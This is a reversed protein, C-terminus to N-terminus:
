ETVESLTPTSAVPLRAFSVGLPLWRKLRSPKSTTSMDEHMYKGSPRLMMSFRSAQL